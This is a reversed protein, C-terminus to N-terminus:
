QLWRNSHFGSNQDSRAWFGICDKGWGSLAVSLIQNRDTRKHRPFEHKFTNVSLCVSAPEIPLSSYLSVKHAKPEPSSFIFHM